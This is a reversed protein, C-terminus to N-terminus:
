NEKKIEKLIEIHEQLKNLQNDIYKQIFNEYDEKNKFKPKLYEKEYGYENIIYLSGCVLHEKIFNFTNRNYYDMDEIDTIYEIRPYLNKIYKEINIVIEKINDCEHNAVDESKKNCFECGLEFTHSM